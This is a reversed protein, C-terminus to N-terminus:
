SRPLSLCVSQSPRRALLQAEPATPSQVPTEVRAPDGATTDCADMTKGSTADGDAVEM